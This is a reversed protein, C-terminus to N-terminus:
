SLNDDNCAGDEISSLIQRLADQGNTDLVAESSPLAFSQDEKSSSRPPISAQNPTQGTILSPDQESPVKEDSRGDFKQHQKVLERREVNTSKPSESTDFFNDSEKEKGETEDEESDTDMDLLPPEFKEKEDDEKKSHIPSYKQGSLITSPRDQVRGHNVRSKISGEESLVSILHSLVSPDRM